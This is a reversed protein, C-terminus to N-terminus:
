DGYSSTAKFTSIATKVSLSDFSDEFRILQGLIIAQMLRTKCRIESHNVVKLQIALNGLITVVNFEKMMHSSHKILRVQMFQM